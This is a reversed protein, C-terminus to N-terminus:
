KCLGGLSSKKPKSLANANRWPCTPMPGTGYPKLADANPILAEACIHPEHFPITGNSAPSVSACPSHPWLEGLGADIPAVSSPIQNHTGQSAKVASACSTQPDLYHDEAKPMTPQMCESLLVDWTPTLTDTHFHKHESVRQEARVWM